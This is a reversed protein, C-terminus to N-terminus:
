ISNKIANLIEEYELEKLGTGASSPFHLVQEWTDSITSWYKKDPAYIILRKASNDMLGPQDSDGWWETLTDFDKAM